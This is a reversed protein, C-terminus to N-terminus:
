HRAGAQEESSNYGSSKEHACHECEHQQQDAARGKGLAKPVAGSGGWKPIAGRSDFKEPYLLSVAQGNFDLRVLAEDGALGDLYASVAANPTTM